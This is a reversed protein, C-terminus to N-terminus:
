YRYETNTKTLFIYSRSYNEEGRLLIIKKRKYVVEGLLKTVRDKLVSLKENV